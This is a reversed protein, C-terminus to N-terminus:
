EFIFFCLVCLAALIEVYRSFHFFVLYFIKVLQFVVSILKCNVRFFLELNMEDLVMWFIFKGFEIVGYRRWVIVEMKSIYIICRM